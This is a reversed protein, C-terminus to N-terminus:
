RAAWLNAAVVFAVIAVLALGFWLLSRQDPRPTHTV